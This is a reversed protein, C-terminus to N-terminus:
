KPQDSLQNIANHNLRERLSPYNQLFATFYHIAHIIDKCGMMERISHMSLQPMGMDAAAIGTNTSLSFAFSCPRRFYGNFRDL